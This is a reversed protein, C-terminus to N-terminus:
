LREKLHIIIMIHTIIQRIREREEVRRGRWFREGEIGGM